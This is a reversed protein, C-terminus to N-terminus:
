PCTTSRWHRKARSGPASSGRLLFDLHEGGCPVGARNSWASVAIGELVGLLARAIGNTTPRIREHSM